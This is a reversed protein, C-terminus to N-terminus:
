HRSTIASPELVSRGVRIDRDDEIVRCPLVLDDPRSLESAASGHIVAGEAAATSWFRLSALEELVDCRLFHVAEILQGFTNPLNRICERFKPLGLLIKRVSM